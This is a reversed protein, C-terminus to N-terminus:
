TWESIERKSRTWKRYSIQQVKCYKCFPIPKALFNLIEEINEAQHISIGDNDSLLVDLDFFKSFHKTNPALACTYIKGNELYICYNAWWCSLFNHVPNQSGTLDLPRCHSTKKTKDGGETYEFKVDKEKAIAKIKKYDINIPYKTAVITIDYKKCTLWFDETQSTLLLGNTVLQIKTNPFYKRSVILFDNLEPHLLPEGGLLSITDVQGNTLFSLREFDAKFLNIDAFKKEALPSYHDCGFCDLNCHDALHVEFRTLYPHPMQRAVIEITKILLTKIIANKNQTKIKIGLFRIVKCNNENKVSFIFQLIKKV